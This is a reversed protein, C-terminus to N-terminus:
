QAMQTELSDWLTSYLARADPTGKFAAINRPQPEPIPEEHHIGGHQSSMVVVRHGLGIAEDLDHTVYVITKRTTDWLTVLLQQLRLRSLADVAAFPEDMLLIDTECLLSRALSLRGRMGGSLQHPRRHDCNELGVQALVARARDYREKKPVGRIELPLAANDLANRWPLLTDKQTMYSVNRNMGKVRRGLCEIVGDTPELIGAMLSLLTSKGCGSPGILVLIEGKKVQLDLHEVIVSSEGRYSFSVDKAEIVNGDGTAALAGPEGAQAAGTLASVASYSDAPDPAADPRSASAPRRDQSRVRDRAKLVGM